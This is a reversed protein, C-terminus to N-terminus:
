WPYKKMLNHWYMIRKSLVKWSGLLETVSNTYLSSLSLNLVKNNQDYLLIFWFNEIEKLFFYKMKLDVKM